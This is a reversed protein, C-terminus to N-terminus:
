RRVTRTWLARLLEKVRNWFRKITFLAALLGAAAVQFIISGSLPDIYALM